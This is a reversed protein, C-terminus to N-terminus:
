ASPAENKNEPLDEKKELVSETPPRVQPHNSSFPVEMERNLANKVDEKNQEKALNGFDKNQLKENQNQFTSM